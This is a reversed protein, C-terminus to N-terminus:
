FGYVARWEDTTWRSPDGQLTNDFENPAGESVERVMQEDKFSWPVLILGECGMRALDEHLNSIEGEDNSRGPVVKSLTITLSNKETAKKKQLRTTTM